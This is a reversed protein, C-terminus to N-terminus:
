PLQDRLVKGAASKPLSDLLIIRAPRKYYILHEQCHAKIRAVDIGNDAVVAAKVHLSGHRTTGPYVKVEAVGPMSAIVEEVERPLVKMGSINIVEAQRGCLNVGGNEDIWGLDGTNFWGDDIVSTDLVEDSLYGIM